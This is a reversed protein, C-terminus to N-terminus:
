ITPATASSLGMLGLVVVLGVALIGLILYVLVAFRAPPKVDSSGVILWWGFVYMAIGAATSVLSPLLRTQETFMFRIYVNDVLPSVVLTMSLAFVAALIIRALRPLKLLSSVVDLWVPKDYESLRSKKQSM